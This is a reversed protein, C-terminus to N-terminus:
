CPTVERRRGPLAALIEGRRADDLAGWAAIEELTRLCGTCLDSQPDILCVRICPSAAPPLRTM